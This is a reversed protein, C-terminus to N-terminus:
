PSQSAQETGGYAGLNIRGGNPLAELSFDSEPDGADICPSTRDDVIWRSQRTDWRGAQSQLHYDDNEIDAFLPDPHDTINNHGERGLDGRVFSYSVNAPGDIDEPTNIWFICNKVLSTDGRASLVGQNSANRVFVSNTVALDGENYVAGGEKAENGIFLCNTIQCAENAQLRLAGGRAATQNEKFVSARIVMHGGLCAIAGGGRGQSTNNEFVCSTITVDGGRQQVAAGGRRGTTNDIFHCHELILQGGVHQLTGDASINGTFSCGTLITGSQDTMILNGRSRNGVFRCDTLVPEGQQVRIATASLHHFRCRDFRPKAQKISVCTHTSGSFRIGEIVASEGTLVELLGYANDLWTPDRSIDDPVDTGVNNMALDSTLLTPYLESDRHHPNEPHALGAYGGRLYDGGRMRFLAYRSGTGGPHIGDRDPTYVGQALRIEVPSSSLAAMALADQLYKCANEWTDGYGEEPGDDDVYIVSLLPQTKFAYANGRNDDVRHNGHGDSVEVVFFYHTNPVLDQLRLTFDCPDWVGVASRDLADPTLGYHVTGYAPETTAFHVVADTWHSAVTTVDQIVPAQFDVTFDAAIRNGQGGENDTDQYIAHISEGHLIQVIGDGPNVAGQSGKIAGSFLGASDIRALEVWEVDGGDTEVSLYTFPEEQLDEDFLSLKLTNSQSSHFFELVAKRSSPYYVVPASIGMGEGSPDGEQRLSVYYQQYPRMSNRYLNLKKSTPAEHRLGKETIPQWDSIDNQGPATGVACGVQDIMWESVNEWRFELVNPDTTLAGETIVVEPRNDIRSQDYPKLTMPITKEAVPIGDCFVHLVFTTEYGSVIGSDMTLGFPSEFNTVKRQSPIAGYAADDRTMKTHTDRTKLLASVEGSPYGYNRLTVYLEATNVNAQRDQAVYRMFQGVVNLRAGLYAADVAKKANVRGSGLMGAYSPNQIDIDDVSSLVQNTVELNSWQPHISKVLAAVGAVLPSSISTGNFSNYGSLWTTLIDKGPAAIDVHLGFNTFDTMRDDDHTAAVTLVGQYAAPYAPISSRDNGASAVLICGREMAYRASRFEQISPRSGGFSMNIIDAGHDAAYRLAQSTFSGLGVSAGDPNRFGHRLMMIRARWAMGTVGLGNNGVAAATGAVSTGHGGFDLPNNDPDGYDEGPFAEDRDVDVFDWGLIDDIYGNNDDDIGNSISDLEDQSISRDGSSDVDHLDIRGDGNRDDVEFANVWINDFLDPHNYDFGSDIIAIVVNPDGITTDWAAPAQTRRLHNRALPHTQFLTDNPETILAYRYTDPEVWALAPDGGLKELLEEVQVGPPVRACYLDNSGDGPRGLCLKRTRYLGYRRSLNTLLRVRDAQDNLYSRKKGGPITAPKFLIRYPAYAPLDRLTRVADTDQFRGVGAGSACLATFLLFVQIKRNGPV